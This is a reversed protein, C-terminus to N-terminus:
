NFIEALMAEIEFNTLPDTVEIKLQRTSKDGELMVGNIKPKNILRDYNKEFIPVTNGMELKQQQGTNIKLRVNQDNM